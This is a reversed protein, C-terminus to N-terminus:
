KRDLYFVTYTVTFYMGVLIVLIGSITPIWGVLVTLVFFVIVLILIDFFNNKAINYSNSFAAGIDLDDIVIGQNVFALLVVVILAGICFVFFGLITLIVTIISVILLVIIKRIGIQSWAESLTVKKGQIANYTIIIAFATAVIGFILSLIGLVDFYHPASRDVIGRIWDAKFESNLFFDPDLEFGPRLVGPAFATKVVFEGILVLVVPILYPVIILPNQKIINLAESLLMGISKRNNAM